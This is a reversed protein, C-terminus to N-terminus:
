RDTIEAEAELRRAVSADELHLNERHTNAVLALWMLLFLRKFLTDRLWRRM